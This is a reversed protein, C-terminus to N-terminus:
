GYLYTVEKEVRRVRLVAMGVIPVDKSNIALLGHLGSTDNNDEFM